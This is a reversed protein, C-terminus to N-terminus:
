FGKNFSLLPIDKMWIRDGIIMEKQFVSVWTTQSSNDIFIVIYINNLFSLIQHLVLHMMICLIKKKKLEKRVTKTVTM